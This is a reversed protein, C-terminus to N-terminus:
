SEITVTTGIPTWHYLWAATALPTEVCGHSANSTNPNINGFADAPRWTADHFGYIGYKNALFPMFYHVHDDWSGTSDSGKLYLNTSKTYIHYTGLPTLDAPLMEIGTVVASDYVLTTGDCAWLHRKSISVLVYRTTPASSTCPNVIRANAVVKATQASVKQSRSPTNTQGRVILVIGTAVALVAIFWALRHQHKPPQAQTRPYRANPQRLEQM